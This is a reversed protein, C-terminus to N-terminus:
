DMDEDGRPQVTAVPPAASAAELAALRKMDDVCAQLEVLAAELDSTPATEPEQCWDVALVHCKYHEDWFVTARVCVGGGHKIDGDGSEIHVIQGPSGTATWRKFKRSVWGQQMYAAACGAIQETPEIVTLKTKIERWRDKTVNCPVDTDWCSVVRQIAAYVAQAARKAIDRLENIHTLADM